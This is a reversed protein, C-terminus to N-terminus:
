VISFDEFLVGSKIDDVLKQDKKTSIILGESQFTFKLFTKLYVNLPDSKHLAISIFSYKKQYILNQAHRVILQFLRQNGEEMAFHKIYMMKIPENLRPLKSKGFVSACANFISVQVGLWKSMSIIVNQKLASTDKLCSIAKITGTKRVVFILTDCLGEKTVSPGLQYRKYYSNLFRVVEDSAPEAHLQYPDYRVIQGSGPIQFVNFIGVSQFDGLGGDRHFFSSPKRNGKAVVTFVLNSGASQLHSQVMSCLNAGIGNCRFKPAVKLDGVYHLPYAHGNVYKKQASVSISGVISQDCEAVFVKSPGRENLLRFFDPSRDIRVSIEGDMPTEETLKLLKENDESNAERYIINKENFAMRFTQKALKYHITDFVTYVLTVWNQLISLGVTTIQFLRVRSVPRVKGM